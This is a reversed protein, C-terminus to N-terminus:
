SIIKTYKISKIRTRLISYQKHLYISYIGTTIFALVFIGISIGVLTQWTLIEYTCPIPCRLSPYQSYEITEGKEGTTYPKM